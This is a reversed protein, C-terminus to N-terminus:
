TFLAWPKTKDAAVTRMTRVAADALWLDTCNEDPLNECSPNWQKLKQNEGPQMGGIAIQSDPAFYTFQCSDGACSTVAMPNDGLATIDAPAPTTFETSRVM